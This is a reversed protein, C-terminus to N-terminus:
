VSAKLSFNVFITKLDEEQSGRRLGCLSMYVCVCMCVCVRERERECVCVCMCVCVSFWWIVDIKVNVGM